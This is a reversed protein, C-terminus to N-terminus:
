EIGMLNKLKNQMAQITNKEILDHMKKSGCWHTRLYYALSKPILIKEERSDEDNAIIIYPEESDFNAEYAFWGAPITMSSDKEEILENEM